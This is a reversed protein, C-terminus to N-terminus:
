KRNWDQIKRNIWKILKSGSKSKYKESGILFTIPRLEDFELCIVKLIAAFPLFLVMGAVGWIMAGFILSLIASLANIHIQDGIIKPSLINSEILQVSWFLIIVSFPIWLSDNTMFAYLVPISAGLTTGIYPIITLSAAFFGFLFPSDIGIIWLGLSNVIGLIIIMILIGSLYNQGVRQMNKIMRLVKEQNEPSAFQILGQTLNARGILFLFTFIITEIIQAFFTATNNFTKGILIGGSNNLWNNLRNLFDEKELNEAFMVHHNIYLIVDTFLKLIKTQFDSFVVPLNMLQSSFFLTIGIIVSISFFISIFTATIRTFGWLEIRRAFPYMIFSIIIAFALPILVTKALVLFTILGFLIAIIYYLRQFSIRM